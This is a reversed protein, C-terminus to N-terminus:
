LGPLVALTGLVQGEMESEFMVAGQKGDLGM